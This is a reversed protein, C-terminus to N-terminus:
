FAAGCHRHQGQLHLWDLSCSGPIFRAGYHGGNINVSSMLHLLLL